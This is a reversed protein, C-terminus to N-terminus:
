WLNIGRIFLLKWAIVWYFVENKATAMAETDNKKIISKTSVASLLKSKLKM